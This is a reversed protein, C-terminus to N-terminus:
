FFDMVLFQIVKLQWICGVNCKVVEIEKDEKHDHINWTLSLSSIETTNQYAAKRAFRNSNRKTKSLLKGGVRCEYAPVSFSLTPFSQYVWSETFM